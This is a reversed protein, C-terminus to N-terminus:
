PASIEEGRIVRREIQNMQRAAHNMFTKITEILLIDQIEWLGHKGLTELTSSAKDLYRQCVNIYDQHANAIFM